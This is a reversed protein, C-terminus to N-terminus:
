PFAVTLGKNIKPTMERRQIHNKKEVNQQFIFLVQKRVSLEQHVCPLPELYHSKALVVWHSVGAVRDSCTSIREWLPRM